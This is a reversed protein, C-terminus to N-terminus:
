VQLQQVTLKLNLVEDSDTTCQWGKSGEHAEM